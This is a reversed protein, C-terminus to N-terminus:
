EAEDLVVISDVKAVVKMRKKLRVEARGASSKARRSSLVSGELAGMSM